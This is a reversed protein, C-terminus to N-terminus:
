KVPNINMLVSVRPKELIYSWKIRLDYSPGHVNRPSRQWGRRTRAEVIRFSSLRETIVLVKIATIVSLPIYVVGTWHQRWQIIHQNDITASAGAIRYIGM